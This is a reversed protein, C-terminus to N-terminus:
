NKKIYEKLEAYYKEITEEVDIWYRGMIISDDNHNPVKNELVGGLSM